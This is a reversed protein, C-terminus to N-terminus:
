FKLKRSLRDIFDADRDIKPLHRSLVAIITDGDGPEFYITLPPAFRKVPILTINEIGDENIISFSKFEDYTHEKHGIILSTDSISYKLTHPDRKSYVFVAVALLLVVIVSTIDRVSFYLIAGLGLAVGFLGAYWMPTKDHVMYESAEWTLQVDDDQHRQSPERPPLNQKMEQSDQPQNEM